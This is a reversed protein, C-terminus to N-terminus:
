NAEKAQKAGARWVIRPRGGTVTTVPHALGANILTTKARELKEGSLHRGFVASLQSESLEGQTRLARLITDAHPDGLNSGFILRTSTEAYDWLALAASLHVLDIERRGDLLCYLGSLRMVQAEGRALLSGSLGPRDASLDHYIEVWGERAAPTLRLQGVTRADTLMIRLRTALRGLTDPDPEMPFPLEKSRRVLLWIFRNGFGNSAETDSLNRLLEEKTVHGIIGIHPATARVINSKTMPALDQGDWADRLVGSLSNGERNMVRLVAGFESQVLFLRKDAVGRDVCITMTEGTLQGNGKTPKDEHRPDRVAFALGEGSSLTGRLQGRTWTHDADHCVKQIRKGSTGKRSKSSNGALVPWVLLPHYSGDLILHPGRNLMAGFEALISALLAVSDAETCPEIARVIEGALGHYATADMMPWAASLVDEPKEAASKESPAAKLNDILAALQEPTAGGNSEAHLASQLADRLRRQRSKEVVIRCHHRVNAASPTISILEAVYSAGGVDTLIRKHELADTLTVNDIPQGREALELMIGFIARHATRYFDEPALIERATVLAGNDLLIAGLISQEAEVNQSPLMPTTALTM